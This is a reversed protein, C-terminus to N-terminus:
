ECPRDTGRPASGITACRRHDVGKDRTNVTEMIGTQYFSLVSLESYRAQKEFYRKIIFTASETHYSGTKNEFSSQITVPYIPVPREPPEAQGWAWGWSLSTLPQHTARLPPEALARAAATREPHQLYPNTTNNEKISGM